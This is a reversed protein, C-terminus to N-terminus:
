LSQLFTILAERQSKNMQMVKERAPKAEGGHWLIAELLTKARGDHLFSTNGAVTQTLGIGWLPPTRWEREDALYEPRGDALEPGMDHLLLDTYPAIIQNALWPYIYSGTQIEPLHCNHCGASLFQKRGRSVSPTEAGRQAPVALNHTYFTIKNFLNQSVEPSGGATSTACVKQAQTCNESGILPSTIGIDANFAMANQQELSPQGAKWGFRGIRTTQYQIDWVRNLKGSIGDNNKDEPDALQELTKPSIAALLGLGIMPPAIRASILTEPHLPGYGLKKMTVQPKRLTVQQGDPFDVVHLTYRVQIQGESRVGPLAFNQLQDGYSPEPIVGLRQLQQATGWHNPISLRLLFSVNSMNRSEGPQPAHGRGDRRHCNECANTNFLPGLGDRATTTAPAIVWPNRFFSNGVHFDLKAAVPINAAPQSFAHQNNSYVTTAGGQPPPAAVTNAVGFVAFLVLSLLKM